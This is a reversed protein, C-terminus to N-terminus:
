ATISFLGISARTSFNFFMGHTDIAGQISGNIKMHIQVKLDIQITGYFCCESERWASNPRGSALRDSGNFAPAGAWPFFHVEPSSM